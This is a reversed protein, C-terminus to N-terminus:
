KRPKRVTTPKPGRAVRPPPVPGGSFAILAQTAYEALSVRQLAAQVKIHAHLEDDFPKISLIAM